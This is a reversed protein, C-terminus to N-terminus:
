NIVRFWFALGQFQEPQLGYQLQLEKLIPFKFGTNSDINIKGSALYTKDYPGSLVSM